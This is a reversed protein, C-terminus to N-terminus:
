SKGELDLTDLVCGRRCGQGEWIIEAGGPALNGVAMLYLKGGCTSCIGEQDVEWWKQAVEVADLADDRSMFARYSNPVTGARAWRPPDTADLEMQEGPKAPDPAWVHWQDYEDKIIEIALPRLYEVEAEAAALKARLSEILEDRPDQTM